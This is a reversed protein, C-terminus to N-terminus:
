SKNWEAVFNTLMDGTSNFGTVNSEMAQFQSNYSQALANSRLEIVSLRKALEDAKDQYTEVQRRHEYTNNLIDDHFETFLTTFSKGLSIIQERDNSITANSTRLSFGSYFNGGGFTNDPKSYTYTGNEPGYRLFHENHPNTAAKGVYFSYEDGSGDGLISHRGYDNEHTFDYVGAPMTSASSWIVTIDPESSTARDEILAAFRDPSNTFTSDFARQDFTITGNTETKFGLQALYVPNADLAANEVGGATRTTDPSGYGNIPKLMFDALARLRSKVYDDDFLDGHEGAGSTDTISLARLDAKYANLEDVFGQVTKQVDTKSLATKIEAGAGGAAKVEFSIGPIVDTVTNSARDVDLGDLKFKLDKAAQDFTRLTAPADTNNWVDFVRSDTNGGSIGASVTGAPDGVATISTITKFENVSTAMGGNAGTVTETITVNSANTGVVKFTIGRDDAGSTITVKRAAANTVISKAAVGAIVTGAPTGVATISTVTLFDGETTVTGGATAGTMRETRASGDANTGVVDFFIGADNGGSSITVKQPVANNITGKAEVGATVTGAPTGVATISTITKFEYFSTATQGASAGAVRETRASGDGNTGVVDFFIGSDNGGSTITVKQPVANTITGKAEVGATVTGAPTGVATISTITKFEYSSTATGGATAGTVLETLSGGDAKTGIIRYQIGSDDGGSAITVKQPSSNTVGKKEVLSVKVTKPDGYSGNLKIRTITQFENLSTVTQGGSGGTVTEQITTGGANTGFITFSAGSADSYTHFAVRQPDVLTVSGSSASGGDLILDSNDALYVKGAPNVTGNRRSIGEDVASRITTVALIGDTNVSGNAAPSRSVSIGDSDAVPNLTALTGGLSLPANAKLGARSTSVGDPDAVPNLTALTGGLTLPANAAVTRTESIGNPDAGAAGASLSGDINLSGNNAVQAATSISAPNAGTAPGTSIEFGNSVGTEGTIIIKYKGTEIMSVRANLGTIADLKQAVSAISEGSNLNLTTTTAASSDFVDASGDSNDTYTGGVKITLSYASAIGANAATYHATTSGPAPVSFSMAQALQSIDTIKSTGPKVLAQNTVSSILQNEDSSTTSYFSATGKMKSINTKTLESSQKLQALGSIATEVKEQRAVVPNKIPDIDADVIAGVIQPINLGSGNRNIQSIYDNSAIDSM